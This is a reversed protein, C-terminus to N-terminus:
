AWDNFQSNVNPNKTTQPTYYFDSASKMLDILMYKSLLSMIGGPDFNNEVVKIKELIENRIDSPIHEFLVLKSNLEYNERYMIDSDLNENLNKAFAYINKEGFPIMRFIKKTDKLQGKLKGATVVEYINYKKIIDESIAM